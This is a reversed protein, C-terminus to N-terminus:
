IIKKVGKRVWAKWLTSYAHIENVQVDERYLPQQANCWEFIGGYLNYVNEFGAEIIQQAILGSRWGISCYVVFKKETSFQRVQEINFNKYGVFVANNLHSVDFEKRERADLFIIKDSDSLAKEVSIFQAKAPLFTKLLQDFLPNSVTHKNSNM